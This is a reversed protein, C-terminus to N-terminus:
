QLGASRNKCSFRGSMVRSVKYSFEGWPIFGYSIGTLASAFFLTLILYKRGLRNALFPISMAPIEVLAGYVYKSFGDSGLNSTNEVYGYYCMFGTVSISPCADLRTIFIYTSSTHIRVM